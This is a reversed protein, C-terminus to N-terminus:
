SVLLMIGTHLIDQAATSSADFDKLTAVVTGNKAVREVRFTYSTIGGIFAITLAYTDAPADADGPQTFHRWEYSKQPHGPFDTASWLPRHQCGFSFLAQGPGKTTLKSRIFEGASVNVLAGQEDTRIKLRGAKGFDAPPTKAM